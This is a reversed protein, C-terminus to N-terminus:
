IGRTTRWARIQDGHEKYHHASNLDVIKYATKGPQYREASVTAAVHMFSAHSKDFELLVDAVKADRAAAAFGANWADVDDYRVGEPVPREGRAIRELAAGMERHWGSMHAVIDKVSWTGLWVETMQEENLGRLAEHFAKHERAGANLLEDKATM